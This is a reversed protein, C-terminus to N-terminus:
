NYAIFIWSNTDVDVTEGSCPADTQYMYPLLPVGSEVVDEVLLRCPLYLFKGIGPESKEHYKRM